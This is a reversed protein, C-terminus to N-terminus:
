TGLEIKLWTAIQGAKLQRWRLWVPLCRPHLHAPYDSHTQPTEGCASSVEVMDGEGKVGQCVCSQACPSSPLSGLHFGTALFVLVVAVARLWACVPGAQLTSHKYVQPEQPLQASTPDTVRSNVTPFCTAMLLQAVM